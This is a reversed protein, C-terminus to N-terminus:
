AAVVTSAAAVRANALDAHVIEYEDTTEPVDIPQLAKGMRVLDSRKVPQTAAQQKAFYAVVDAHPVWAMAMWRYATSKKLKHLDLVDILSKSKTGAQSSTRDTRVGQGREVARLLQGGRWEAWLAATAVRYYDRGTFKGSRRIAAELAGAGIAFDVIEGLVQRAAEAYDKPTFWETEGTNEGVHAGPQLELIKVYRAIAAEYTSEFKDPANLKRRWRDIVYRDPIGNHGSRPVQTASRSRVKKEVHTDWWFVFEAQAELKLRIAHQLKTPDKARAYHKEAAEAVAITKLGKAPEYTALGGNGRRALTM